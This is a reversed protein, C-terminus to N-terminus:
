RGAGSPGAANEADRLSLTVPEVNWGTVSLEPQGDLAGPSLFEAAIDRSEGPMLEFYNDDWLVPLIEMDENKRRIALRVQFALRDSPNRLTVRVRPGDSGREIRASVSMSGANPLAQLATLDEYSSVPTYPDATKAWDYVNKKASLWYFNRSVTEGAANELTLQLFYVPSVPAFADDPLALVNAVSDAEINARAERSFIERLDSDYVKATVTLGSVDRYSSNVVVVGRDPYSYQVHLPECAKKAGFYGGAPQLYYDYLHWILSPWANNLMWQIIGTSRYKSASYAEFMAREADYAMVQSKMEYHEIDSPAGYVANMAEDFHSLDAYKGSGAHFNWAPDDPEIDRAPLMKRLCSLPPVVPGPSAETNFGFAGGFKDADALWYDPPVYDYPGRMKVGSAGSVETPTESASSLVPNPWGSEKLVRIYAREVNDAPPDDSGNLWALMSAHGRMRLIQSRLSEAAIALDGPKWKAWQEWYDCCCWGALILVGQEDALDYFQDTELKGELRIANLNLNRIYRFETKLRDDSERLLMDPAWGGGRILIRKGNVRFLRHGQADIESTVERIGFRMAASDSLRDGILFRLRLPHLVPEGMQRPWWLEPNSVRLAPFEEPRFRVMRIERSALVVDQRLTHGEIEAELVGKLPKSGANRIEAEVTLEARDLSAGPFHTIVQPYRIEVPGTSRLYVERWLGMNKDPPAPNWDVWNIGLDTETQPFTEVALVNARGRALWRSVDFEYTRYAGAVDNSGAIQRGNLWINARYNIGDFHLWVRHGASGDPARFETRYWWSCRFPSDQPMPLLSFNKGVPYTAGPLSRLNEGFYPDPFTGDAVLAAVVTSPVTAPHWGDARFGPKSIQRGTAGIKCSSQLLWGERLFTKESDLAAPDALTRFACAFCALVLFLAASLLATPKTRAMM